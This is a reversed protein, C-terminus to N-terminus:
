SGREQADSLLGLRTSPEGARRSAQGDTPRKFILVRETAVEADQNAGLRPQMEFLETGVHEFGVALAQAVTANVLPYRKTKINVDEINIIGHAGPKLARFTLALMPKLFGNVWADFSHGYRVWSQTPEDSYHEKSFYPPSTFSFDCRGEVVAADMDEAATNHLEVSDAVGLAAALALNGAHTVTNPDIGIYRGRVMSAVFGVLRGGYGTSTDLVTAGPECFRRYLLCAFGPRFNSCQQTGRSLTLEGFFGAPIPNGRELRLDLAHRFKVDDHFCEFPSVKGETTAHFRHSHFTDAVSYAESTHRLSEEPALALRNVQQMIVFRPLVRYPFGSERFWRFAEDVIESNTYLGNAAEATLTFPIGADNEVREQVEVPEPEVVTPEEALEEFTEVEIIDDVVADAVVVPPQTEDIMDFLPSRHTM